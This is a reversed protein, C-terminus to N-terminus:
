HIVHQGSLTGIAIGQDGNALELLLSLTTLKM